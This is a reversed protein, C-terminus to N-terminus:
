QENKRVLNTYKKLITEFLLLESNILYDFPIEAFHSKDGYIRKDRVEIPDGRKGFRELLTYDNEDMKVTLIEDFENVMKEKVQKLGNPEIIAINVKKTPDFASKALGYYNGNYHVHEVLDDNALMKEFHERTIFNYDVGPIEGPRSDRTTVSVAEHVQDGYLDQIKRIMTTKGVCSRGFLIILLNKEM